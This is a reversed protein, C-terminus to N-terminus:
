ASIPHMQMGELLAVVFADIVTKKLTGGESSSGSIYSISPPPARPLDTDYHRRRFSM